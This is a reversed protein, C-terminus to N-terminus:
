APHLRPELPQSCAGPEAGQGSSVTVSFSALDLTSAMGARNGTPSDCVRDALPPPLSSLDQISLALPNHKIPPQYSGPIENISFHLGEMEESQTM